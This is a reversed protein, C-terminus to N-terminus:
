RRVDDFDKDLPGTGSFIIRKAPLSTPVLFVGSEASKDVDGVSKLPSRVEEPLCAINPAVVVISDYNASKLDGCLDVPTTM